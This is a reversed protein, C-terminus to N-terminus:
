VPGRGLVTLKSYPRGRTASRGFCVLLSLPRFHAERCDAAQLIATSMIHSNVLRSMSYKEAQVRNGKVLLAWQESSKVWLPAGITALCSQPLRSVQLLGTAGMASGFFHPQVKVM